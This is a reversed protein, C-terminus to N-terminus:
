SALSMPTRRQRVGTMVFRSAPLAPIRSLNIQLNQAPVEYSMERVLSRVIAKMQEVTMWEGPCRHTARRDGGGHSVLDYPGLNRTRFREPRFREPDGWLLPDHNTGYLDFLVRDGTRFRHDRWSFETMVRGGIAAIFPYYRRVEDVFHDMEEDSARLRERWEPHAHLAMAAFVAYRAVAVSPRLINILEVAAAKVTLLRGEPDRFLSIAHAPSGKEVAAKGSRIGRVVERMWRETRARMRHGRWKRLGLSGSGEVMAEFEEARQRIEEESLRLGSWECIAACLPLHAEHFLPVKEMGEWRRIADHWHLATLTSVRAMAAPSMFSLLMRKRLRHEEGDSTMVSGVDQILSLIFHPMAGRRTFRGPCYFQEAAERGLMCVSKKLMLRTAFVDSGFKQSRKSIFEYGDQFFLAFTSDPSHDHPIAM